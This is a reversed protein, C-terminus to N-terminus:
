REPHFQDEVLGIVSIREIDLVGTFILYENVVTEFYPRRRQRDLANTCRPLSSLPGSSRPSGEVQSRREKM